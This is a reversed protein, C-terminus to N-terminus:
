NFKSSVKFLIDLLIHHKLHDCPWQWLKLKKKIKNESLKWLFDKEKFQWVCIKRTFIKKIKVTSGRTLLSFINSFFITCEQLLYDRSKLQLQANLCSSQDTRSFFFREQKNHKSNQSRRERKEIRSQAEISHAEWHFKISEWKSCSVM